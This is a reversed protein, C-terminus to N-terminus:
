QVTNRRVVRLPRRRRLLAVRFLEHRKEALHVRAPHARVVEAGPHSLAVLRFHAVPVLKPAPHALRMISNIRLQALTRKITIPPLLPPARTPLIPPTISSPSYISRGRIDGRINIPFRALAQHARSSPMRDVHSM